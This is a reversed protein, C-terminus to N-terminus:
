VTSKLRRTRKFGPLSHKSNTKLTTTNTFLSVVGEDEGSQEQSKKSRTKVVKSKRSRAGTFSWSCNIKNNCIWRKIWVVEKEQLCGAVNKKNNCIVMNCLLGRTEIIMWGFLPEDKETEEVM